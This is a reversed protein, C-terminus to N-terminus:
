ACRRALEKGRAAGSMERAAPKRLGALARDASLKRTETIVKPLPKQLKM